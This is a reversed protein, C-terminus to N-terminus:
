LAASGDRRGELRPSAPPFRRKGGSGGARGRPAKRAARRRSAALARMRPTDGAPPSSPGERGGGDQASLPGAMTRGDPGAPKAVPRGRGAARGPGGCPGAPTGGVGRAAEQGKGVGGAAMKHYRPLEVAPPCRAPGPWCGTGPSRTRGPAAAPPAPSLGCGPCAAQPGKAGSAVPRQHQWCQLRGLAGLCPRPPSAPVGCPWSLRVLSMSVVRHGPCVCVWPGCAGLVGRVLVPLCGPGMHGPCISVGYGLVRSLCRVGM